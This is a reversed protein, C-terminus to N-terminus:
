IRFVNEKSMVCDMVLKQPVFIGTFFYVCRRIETEKHKGRSVLSYTERTVGSGHVRLRALAWV